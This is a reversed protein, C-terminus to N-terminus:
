PIYTHLDIVREVTKSKVDIVTISDSRTNLTYLKSVDNNAFMFNPFYGNLPIVQELFRDNSLDYISIFGRDLHAIYLYNEQPQYVLGIANVVTFQGPELGIAKIVDTLPIAKEITDTVTDIVLILNTTGAFLRESAPDYAFPYYPGASIGQMGAPPDYTVTKRITLSDTNIVQVIIRGVDEGGLAYLKSGDPLEFPRSNYRGIDFRTEAEVQYSESDIALFTDPPYGGSAPGPWLSYFTSGDNSLVFSWLGSIERPLQHTGLLHMDEADVELVFEGQAIFAKGSSGFAIDFAGADQRIEPYGAIGEITATETNFKFAYPSHDILVLGTTQGPQRAFFHPRLSENNLVRVAAPANNELDVKIFANGDTSTAYLWRPNGPDIELDNMQTYNWGYPSLGLPIQGTIQGSSTDMVLLNNTNPLPWGTGIYLRKGDLSPEVTLAAGDVPVSQIEGDALNVSYVWGQAHYGDPYWSSFTSVFATTGSPVVALDFVTSSRAEAPLHIKRVWTKAEYNYIGLDVEASGPEQASIVYYQSQDEHSEQIKLFFEHPDVFETVEYTETNIFKLTNGGNWTILLPKYISPIMDGTEIDDIVHILEMTVADLVLIKRWAPAAVFVKQESQDLAIHESELPFYTSLDASAEISLDDLRVKLVTESLDFSLYGYQGDRAITIAIPSFGQPQPKSTPTAELTSTPKSTPEPIDTPTASAIALSTQTPVPADQCAPLGLCVLLLLVVSRKM